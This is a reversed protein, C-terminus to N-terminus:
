TNANQKDIDRKAKMTQKYKKKKLLAKYIQRKNM